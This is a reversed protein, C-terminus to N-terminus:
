KQVALYAMMNRVRACKTQGSHRPWAQVQREHQCKGDKITQSFGNDIWAGILSTQAAMRSKFKLNQVITFADSSSESGTEAFTHRLFHCPVDIEAIVLQLM